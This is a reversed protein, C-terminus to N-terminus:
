SPQKIKVRITKVENVKVDVPEVKKFSLRNKVISEFADSETNVALVILENRSNIFFKVDAQYVEGEPLVVKKMLQAIQEGVVTAPEIDKANLNVLGVAAVFLLALLSKTIAKM